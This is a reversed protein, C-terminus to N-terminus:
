DRANIFLSFTDAAAGCHNSIVDLMTPCFCTVVSAIKLHASPRKQKAKSVDLNLFRFTSSVMLSECQYNRGEILFGPLIHLAKRLTKYLCKKDVCYFLLSYFCQQLRLRKRELNLPLDTLTRANGKRILNQVGTTLATRFSTM